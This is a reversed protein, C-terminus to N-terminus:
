ASSPIRSRTRDRPSPSTYLLCTVSPASQDRLAMPDADFRAKPMLALACVGLLIVVFALRNRTKSHLSIPARKVTNRIENAPIAKAPFYSFIAPLLSTAVLFAISVGIAAIVGLQSIGVFKTPVFALFALATSPATLVLATGIGRSVRYFAAPVSLGKGRKSQLHMLLHIAFDVGLGVMLVTFAISVLNLQGYIVAGLGATILISIILSRDRICMESGM